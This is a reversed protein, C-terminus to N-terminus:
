NILLLVMLIKKMMIFMKRILLMALLNGTVSINMLNKDHKNNGNKPKILSLLARIKISKVVISVIFNKTKM